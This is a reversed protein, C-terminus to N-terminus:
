KSESIKIIWDIQDKYYYIILGNHGVDEIIKNNSHNELIACKYPFVMADYKATYFRTNNKFNDYKLCKEILSRSVDSDYRLEEIVKENGFYNSLYYGKTILAIDALYTGRLPSGLTSVYVNNYNYNDMIKSYIYLAVRGGNSIGILIIRINKKIIDRIHKDIESYVPDGSQQLTCMGRNTIEPIYLKIYDNYKELEKIHLWFQGSSSNMGHLMIIISKMNTNNFDDNDNVYDNVYISPFTDYKGNFQAINKRHKIFYEAETYLSSAVNYIMSMPAQLM